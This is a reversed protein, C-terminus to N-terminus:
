KSVEQSRAEIKEKVWGLVESKVWTSSRRNIKVQGPFEGAKIAEYLGTKSLGTIELVVTLRILQIVEEAM